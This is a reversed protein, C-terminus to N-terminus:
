DHTVTLDTPPNATTTTDAQDMLAKFQALLTSDNSIATMIYASLITSDIYPVISVTEYSVGSPVSVGIDIGAGSSSGTVKNVLYDPNTDTSSVKVKGDLEEINATIVVTEDDSFDLTINDGAVLKDELTGPTTDDANSAVTRRTGSTDKISLDMGTCSGNSVLEFDDGDVTLISNAMLYNITSISNQVANQLSGASSVCGYTIASANFNPLTCLYTKIKDITSVLSDTAGPSALCSTTNNFTPLPDLTDLTTQMDASFAILSNFAQILTTPEPDVSIDAWDASSPDLMPYIEAFASNFATQVQAYTSEEDISIYSNTVLAPNEIAYVRNNTSTFNSTTDTSFDTFDSSTTCVYDSIVEVFEQPTTIPSDDPNTLCAYNFTSWDVANSDIDCFKEDFAKIIVELNTNSAIDNCTLASGTYKVCSSDMQTDCIPSCSVCNSQNFNYSFSTHRNSSNCDVCSM